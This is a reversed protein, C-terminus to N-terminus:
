LDEFGAKFDGKGLDGEIFQKSFTVMEDRSVVARCETEKLKLVVVRITM